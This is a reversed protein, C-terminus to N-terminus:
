APSNVETFKRVYTDESGEKRIFGLGEYLRIASSNQPNVLLTVSHCNANRIWVLAEKMLALAIGQRRHGPRVYLGGVFGENRDDDSQGFWIFGVLEDQWTCLYYRYFACTANFVLHDLSTTGDEDEYTSESPTGWEGLADTLALTLPLLPKLDEENFYRFHYLSIM